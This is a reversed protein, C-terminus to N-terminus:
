IKAAEFWMAEHATLRELISGTPRPIMPNFRHQLVLLRSLGAPTLAVTKSGNPADGLLGVRQLRLIDHRWTDRPYALGYEREVLEALDRPTACFLRSECMEQKSGLVKLLMVSRIPIDVPCKKLFDLEPWSPVGFLAEPDIELQRVFQEHTSHVQLPDLRLRSSALVDLTVERLMNAQFRGRCEPDELTVFLPVVEFSPFAAALIKAAFLAAAVSESKAYAHVFVAASSGFLTKRDAPKALAFGRDMRKAEVPLQAM